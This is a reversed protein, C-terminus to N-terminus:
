KVEVIVRFGIDSMTLNPARGARLAPRCGGVGKCWSGGRFIRHPPRGNTPGQPDVVKGTEYEGFWDACWEQANGLMDYLGFNNAKFQGVPATCVFNGGSADPHKKGIIFNGWGRGENMDSGWPFATTTGARCAYEWQAETPLKVTKSTKRSLWDCFALADSYSVCVVPHDDTQVFGPNKWSTGSTKEWKNSANADWAEAWGQKEADTKYGSDSVFQAFQGRTVEFAGMYFPKSITVEHQVENERRPADKPSGMMFKGAPVPVLKMVVKNGLELTLSREIKPQVTVTPHPPVVPPAMAPRSAVVPRPVVVPAVPPRLVLVPHTTVVPQSAAVAIKGPYAKKEKDTMQLIKALEDLDNQVGAVDAASIHASQVVDGTAADMLRATVTINGLRSAIRGVVLYKVGKLKGCAKQPDEQVADMTLNVEKLLLELQSRDVLQYRDSSFRSLLLGALTKGAEPAGIQGSEAFDVVALTPKEAPQTQAPQSEAPQGLAAAAPVLLFSALLISLLRM